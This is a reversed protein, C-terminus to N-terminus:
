SKCYIVCVGPSKATVNILLFIQCLWPKSTMSIMFLIFSPSIQDSGLYMWYNGYVQWRLKFINWTNLSRNERVPSSPLLSSTPFNSKQLPLFTMVTFLMLRGSWTNSKSGLYSGPEPIRQTVVSMNSFGLIIVPKIKNDLCYYTYKKLCETCGIRKGVSFVATIELLLRKPWLGAPGPLETFKSELLEVGNDRKHRTPSILHTKTKKKSWNSESHDM